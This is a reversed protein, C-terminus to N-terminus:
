AHPAQAAHGFRRRFFGHVRPDIESVRGYSRRGDAEALAPNVPVADYGRRLLERLLM